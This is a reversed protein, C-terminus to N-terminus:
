TLLMRRINKRRRKKGEKDIEREQARESITSNVKVFTFIIQLKQCFFM